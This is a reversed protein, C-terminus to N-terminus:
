DVDIVGSRGERRGRVVSGECTVPGGREEVDVGLCLREVGCAEHRGGVGGVGGGPELKPAPNEDPHAVALIPTNSPREPSCWTAVVPRPAQQPIRVIRSRVTGNRHHQLSLRWRRQVIFALILLKNGDLHPALIGGISDRCAYEDFAGARHSVAATPKPGM